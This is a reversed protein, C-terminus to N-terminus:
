QGLINKVINVIDVGFAMIAVIVLIIAGYGQMKSYFRTRDRDEKEEQANLYDVLTDEGVRNDELIRINDKFPCDLEKRLALKKLELIAEEHRNTRSNTKTTQEKIYELDKKILSFHKDASGTIETKALQLRDDIIEKVKMETVCM